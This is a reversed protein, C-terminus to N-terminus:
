IHKEPYRTRVPNQKEVSGNTIGSHNVSMLDCLYKVSYKGNLKEILEYECRLCYRIGKDCRKESSLRKKIM